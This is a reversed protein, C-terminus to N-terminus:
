PTEQEKFCISQWSELKSECGIKSLYETIEPTTSGQSRCLENATFIAAIPTFSESDFYEPRHHLGVLEVISQPLGWLSLLYAGIAAHNTGFIEQEIEIQPKKEEKTRAIVEQYQDTPGTALILKGLDHLIAATFTENVLDKELAEAQTIKSAMHAVELSHSLLGDISFNEISTDEYKQFIGVSLALAKINETGLYSVAQAPTSIRKSIGFAASNSIQLLKATMAPDQSIIDGLLAMTYDESAIADMLATYVSPVCPLSSIQSILQRLETSNLMMRLENARMLTMHLTEADCPKALYQHMPSIARFVAEKDAEGSLVIRIVEPFKESVEQLLKAGDMAPMKMDSVIADFPEQDMKQLAEDASVSLTYTWDVDATDLIREIGRLVLPDDDVFIINM